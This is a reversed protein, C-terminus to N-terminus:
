CIIGWREMSSAMTKILMTDGRMANTTIDSIAVMCFTTM